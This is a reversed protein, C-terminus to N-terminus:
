RQTANGLYFGGSLSALADEVDAEDIGLVLVPVDQDPTTDKRLHGDILELGRPTERALLADAFGVDELMSRLARAQGEPHKGWNKPNALLEAAPM